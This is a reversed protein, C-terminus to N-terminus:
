RTANDPLVWMAGRSDNGNSYEPSNLVASGASAFARAERVLELRARVEEPTAPDEIVEDLPVRDGMIKMHGRVAQGYYGVCGGLVLVLAVLLALVFPRKTIM